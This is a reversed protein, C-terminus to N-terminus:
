ENQRNIKINCFEFLKPQNKAGGKKYIYIINGGNSKLTLIASRTTCNQDTILDTIVADCLRSIYQMGSPAIVM